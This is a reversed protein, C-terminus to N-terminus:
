VNRYSYLLFFDNVMENGFPSIKDQDRKLSLSNLLKLEFDPIEM